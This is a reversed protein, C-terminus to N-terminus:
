MVHVDYLHTTTTAKVQMCSNEPFIKSSDFGTQAEEKKKFYLDAHACWKWM